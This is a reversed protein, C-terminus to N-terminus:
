PEAPSALPTSDDGQAVAFGVGAAAVPLGVVAAKSTTSLGGWWGPATDGIVKNAPVSSQVAVAGGAEAVTEVSSQVAVAGGAEAVTETPEGGEPVIVVRGADAPLRMVFEGEPNTTAMALITGKEDVGKVTVEPLPVSGFATVNGTVVATDPSPAASSESKDLMLARVPMALVMLVPVVVAVLLGKWLGTRFKSM